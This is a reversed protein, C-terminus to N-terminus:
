KGGGGTSRYSYLRAKFMVIKKRITGKTKGAGQVDITCRQTDHNHRQSIGRGCCQLDYRYFFGKLLKLDLV